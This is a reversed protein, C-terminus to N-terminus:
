NSILANYRKWLVSDTNNESEYIKKELAVEDSLQALLADVEDPNVSQPRMHMAIAILPYTEKKKMVGVKRLFKKIWPNM